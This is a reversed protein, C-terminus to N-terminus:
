AALLFAEQVKSIYEKGSKKTDYKRTIAQVCEEETGIFCGLSVVLGKEPHNYCSINRKEDGCAYVGNPINECGSLDLYGGDYNAIIKEAKTMIFILSPDCIFGVLGGSLLVPFPLPM